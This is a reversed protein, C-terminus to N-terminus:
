LGTRKPLGPPRAQAAGRMDTGAANGALKDSLAAYGFTQGQVGRSYDESLLAGTLVAAISGLGFAAVAPRLVRVLNPFSKALKPCVAPNLNSGSFMCVFFRVIRTTTPGAVTSRGACGNNCLAFRPLFNM